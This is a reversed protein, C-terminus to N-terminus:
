AFAAQCVTIFYQLSALEFFISFILSAASIARSFIRRVDAPMHFCIHFAAALPPRSDISDDIMFASFIM